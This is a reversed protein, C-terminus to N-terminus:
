RSGGAGDVWCDSARIDEPIENLIDAADDPDMEELIDAAREDELASLIVMSEEEMMEGLVDALRDDDFHRSSTM